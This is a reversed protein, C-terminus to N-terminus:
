SNLDNTILIKTMSNLTKGVVNDPLLSFGLDDEEDSYVNDNAGSYTIFRATIDSFEKWLDLLFTIYIMCPPPPGHKAWTINSVWLKSWGRVTSVSDYKDCLIAFKRLVELEIKEPIDKQLHFVRCLLFMADFDDGPLPVKSPNEKSLQFTEKFRGTFMTNFVSSGHAMIASSVLIGREISDSTKPLLYVDGRPDLTLTEMQSDNGM